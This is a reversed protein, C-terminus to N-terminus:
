RASYAAGAFSLAPNTGSETALAGLAVGIEVGQPGYLRGSIAGTVSRGVSALPATFDGTSPDIPAAATFTGLEVDPGGAGMPTGVLRLSLTVRRATMDAMISVASRGLSYTRSGSGDRVYATAQLTTRGFSGSPVTALDAALTPIGLVCHYLRGVGQVSASLSALRVYEFGADAARPQVISFRVTDTGIQKALAVETGSTFPDGDRGDFGVSVEGSIAWVQPTLIFRFSLGQGYLTPPLVAPPQGQFVFGSCVGPLSIGAGPRFIYVDSFRMYSAPSAPTAPPPSTTPPTPTTAPPTPTTETPATPTSPTAPASSATPESGGGGCDALLLMMPALTTVHPKM